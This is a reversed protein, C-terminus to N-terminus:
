ESKARLAETGAGLLFPETLLLIFGVLMGILRLHVDYTTELGGGEGLPRSSFEFRGNEM